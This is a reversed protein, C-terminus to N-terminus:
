EDAPAPEDSDDERHTGASDDAPPSVPGFLPITAPVVRELGPSANRARDTAAELAADDRLVHPTLFLILETSTDTSRTSGFLRGLLPIDKLIPIGTRSWENDEEVLGGLVATHGDKVLLRTAAERTGIVPAGFQVESTATSVEQLVTLSVYGDPNITPRITLQTGVDRYQVVQDRVAADTPLSRSLQIFPQQTGVLIRAEENNQAIVVPRSVVSVDSTQSIASLIADVTLAGDRLVRLAFDGTSLGVLSGAVVTKGAHDVVEAGVGLARTRDHRVEAILVEILVQLPRTDLEEIAAEVIAYDAASAHVLLSNTPADPVIRVSGELAGPLATVNTASAEGAGSPPGAGTGDERLEDSLGRRSLGPSGAVGASGGFISGLTGAIQAAQAHRLHYVYLRPISAESPDARERDRREDRTPASVRVLSGNTTLTLGNASVLNELYRRLEGRAVPAGTRLTVRVDPLSGHMLSLGSLEALATLVVSIEANQFNLEVSDGAVEVAPPDQALAPRAEGGLWLAALLVPLLLRRSTRM